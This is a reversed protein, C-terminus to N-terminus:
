TSSIFRGLVLSPIILALVAIAYGIQHPMVMYCIAADFIILSRLVSVVGAQIPKPKAVAIAEVLRRFITLSVIGIFLPFVRRTQDSIDFSTPCYVVLGVGVLGAVILLGAFALPIRGQKEVAEKHGLLTTGAILVGISLAVWWLVIPLGWFLGEIPPSDLGMDIGIVLPVFTSAGLLINLMRCGGMLFPAAITRKLPGDYLVVFIALLIAVFATRVMTSDFGIESDTNGVWGAVCAIMVGTFLLGFGVVRATTKSIQGAPLPRQPRQRLDISYDFVDNLVMGALYISASALILLLLETTPMWTQHVLLFAMLINSIASPLASIRLLRLWAMVRSSDTPQESSTPAM